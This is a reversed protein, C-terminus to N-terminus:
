KQSVYQKEDVKSDVGTDCQKKAVSQNMKDIFGPWDTVKTLEGNELMAEKDKISIDGPGGDFADKVVDKLGETKVTVSIDKFTTINAGRESLKGLYKHFDTGQNEILIGIAVNNDTASGIVDMVDRRSWVSELLMKKDTDKSFDQDKYSKLKFLVNKINRDINLLGSALKLSDVFLTSEDSMRANLSKISNKDTDVIITKGKPLGEKADKMM